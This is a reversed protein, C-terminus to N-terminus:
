RASPGGGSPEPRERMKKYVAALEDKLKRLSQFMELQKRADQDRGDQRYLAALRYHASANTPNLQVAKELFPLAQKPQSLGILAKALGFNAEASSPDIELARDFYSKAQKFDGNQLAMNGLAIVSPEDYPNVKLADKYITAAEAQQKVDNASSLLTALEYDAGPLNPDIALAKRYEAIAADNLNQLADVHAIAAHMQASNPAVLSLRLLSEGALDSYLRYAVYTLQPDTPELEQLQRVIDAAKALERNVEYLHVLSLGAEIRINRNQILPFSLELDKIAVEIQGNREESMGLLAQLKPINPHIELAKRLSHVAGAYDGHFYLLVGLNAEADLNDPDLRVADRLQPIALDPRKEQLYVEAKHNYEAAQAAKDPASAPVTHSTTQAGAWPASFLVVLLLLKISSMERFGRYRFKGLSFISNIVLLLIM